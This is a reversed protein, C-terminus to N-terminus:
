AAPPALCGICRVVARWDALAAQLQVAVHGAAPTELAPGRLEALQAELASAGARMAAVGAAVSSAATLYASLAPLLTQLSAADGLAAAQEARVGQMQQTVGALRAGPRAGVLSALAEPLWRPTGAGAGDLQSQLRSAQCALAESRAQGSQLRRAVAATDRELRASTRAMADLHEGLARTVDDFRGGLDALRAALSAVLCAAEERAAATGSGIRDLAALLEPADREVLHEGFRRLSYMAGLVQPRLRGPWALAGARVTDIHRGILAVAGAAPSPLQTIGAALSDLVGITAAVAEAGDGISDNRFASVTKLAAAQRQAECAPGAIAGRRATSGPVRLSRSFQSWDACALELGPALQAVAPAPSRLRDLVSDLSEALEHWALELAAQAAMVAAAAPITKGLAERRARAGRAVQMHMAASAGRKKVIADLAAVFGSASRSMRAHFGALGLTAQRAGAAHALAALKLVHLGESLALLAGSDDGARRACATMPGLEARMREAFAAVDDISAYLAPQLNQRWALAHALVEREHGSLSPAAASLRPQGDMAAFRTDLRAGATAAQRVAAHLAESPFPNAHPLPHILALDPM